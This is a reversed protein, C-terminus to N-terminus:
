RNACFGFSTSAGAQLVQNWTVGSATLTSGSQSVTGNWSTYTTGAIPFSVSWALPTPNPNTVTVTSCYGQSWENDVHITSTAPQPTGSGSGGGGGSSAGPAPLVQPFQLGLDIETTVALAVGTATIQQGLVDTVQIDYPGPGMGAPAIFYNYMERGLPTFAGGSGSARYGLSSVPSRHDRVQVGTWWPSSGEKFYLKATPAACSVYKWSIPIRGAQLPSIQAFAEQSLDVDGPACEPCRDDVRVLVSQQTNLNTVEICAGCAQATNYDATNMAATLLTAPKPFSCNGGGGYGYFTGEGTHTQQYHGQAAALLPVGALVGAGLLSRTILRCATTAASVSSHM